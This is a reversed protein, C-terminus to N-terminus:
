RHGTQASLILIRGQRQTPAYGHEDVSKRKILVKHQYCVDKKYGHIGVSQPQKIQNESISSILNKTCVDIQKESLRSNFM